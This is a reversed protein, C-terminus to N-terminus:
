SSIETEQFYRVRDLSDRLRLVHAESFELFSAPVADSETGVWPMGDASGINRGSRM